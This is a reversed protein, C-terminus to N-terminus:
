QAATKWCNEVEHLRANIKLRGNRAIENRPRPRIHDDDAVLLRRSFPPGGIALAEIQEDRLEDEVFSGAAIRICGHLAQGRESPNGFESGVGIGLKESDRQEGWLSGSFARVSAAWM